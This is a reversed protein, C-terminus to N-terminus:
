KEPPLVQRTIPDCYKYPGVTTLEGLQLLLTQVTLLRGFAGCGGGAPLKPISPCIRVKNQVTLAGIVVYAVGAYTDAVCLHMM